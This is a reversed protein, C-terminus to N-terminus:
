IEKLHLFVRAGYQEMVAAWLVAYGQRGGGHVTQESFSTATCIGSKLTKPRTQHCLCVIM